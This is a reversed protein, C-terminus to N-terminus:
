AVSPRGVPYDFERYRPDDKLVDGYIFLKSQDASVCGFLWLEKLRPKNEGDWPKYHLTIKRNVKIAVALDSIGSYRELKAYIDELAIQSNLDQPPLEKLQVPYYYEADDKIWKMVFDYDIKESKAVLTPIKLVQDSIGFAFLAADRAERWDKLNNTRLRRVMEDMDSLLSLELARLSILVQRPDYWRLKQFERLRIKEVPVNM